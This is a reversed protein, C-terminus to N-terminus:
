QPQPELAWKGEVKVFPVSVEGAPRTVAGCAKEITTLSPRFSLEREYFVDAKTDGNEKVRIVREARQQACPFRGDRLDGMEVCTRFIINRAHRDYINAMSASDEWDVMYAQSKTTTISTAVLADICGRTKDSAENPVCAGKTSYQMKLQQIVELPLTCTAEGKLDKQIVDLANSKSPGSGCAAVLASV